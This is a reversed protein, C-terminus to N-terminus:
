CILGATAMFEDGGYRYFKLQYNQSYTQLIQGIGRLCDDGAKHGLSDNIQKFHDVDMMLVGSPEPRAQKGMSQLQEYLKRRNFLGTLVDTSKEIVLERQTDYLELRTQVVLRGIFSGLVGACICNITDDLAYRPKLFAALITHVLLWFILFASVKRPRDIISLPMLIFGALLVTARMNPSHIVSLYIGLLFLISFASYLGSLVHRKLPGTQFLLYLLLFTILCSIYAPLAAAKTHSIPVAIIPLLMLAWGMFLLAPLMRSNFANVAEQNTAAM